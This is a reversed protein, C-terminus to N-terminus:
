QWGLSTITSTAKDLPVGQQRLWWSFSNLFMKKIGLPGGLEEITPNWLPRRPFRKGSSFEHLVAITAIEIPSKKGYRNRTFKGKKVGIFVAAAQRNQWVEIANYYSGYAMLTNTNLSRSLKERYWDDSLDAWSLDQNRLHGKVKKVITTGVKLQAKYSATKIKRDLNMVRKLSKKWDGLPEIELRIEGSSLDSRTGRIIGTKKPTIFPM